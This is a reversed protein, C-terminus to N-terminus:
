PATPVAICVPFVSHPDTDSNAWDLLFPVLAAVNAPNTVQLWSLWKLEVAGHYPRTHYIIIIIIIIIIHYSIIVIVIIIIFISIIIRFKYLAM